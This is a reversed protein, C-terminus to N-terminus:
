GRIVKNYFKTGVFDKSFCKSKRLDVVSNIIRKGNRKVGGKKKSM